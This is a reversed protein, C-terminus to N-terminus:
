QQLRQGGAQKSGPQLSREREETTLSPLSLTASMRWMLKALSAIASECRPRAMWSLHLQQAAVGIALELQMLSCAPNFCSHQGAVMHM